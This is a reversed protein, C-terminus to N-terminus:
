LNVFEGASDTLRYVKPQDLWSGLNIAQGGLVLSYQDVVHVHGAILFDFARGSKISAAQVKEAHVRIKDRAVAETIVKRNSTYDRSVHSMREGLRVIYKEAFRNAVIWRVVPTRLLWRLFLYGRDSPDMQDGHELRLHWRGLRLTQPEGHVHFGLQNGFFQQLYLDHNGEFYHVEVGRQHLRYIEGVVPAWLECFYKHKGIWLDFIDGMLFLHTVDDPGNLSRLFKILTQARSDGPSSLHIDSLFYAKLESAM